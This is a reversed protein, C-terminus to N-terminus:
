SDSIVYFENGTKKLLLDTAGLLKLHETEKIIDSKSIGPQVVYINFDAQCYGSTLMNLVTLIDNDGGKEFRSNNGQIIRKEERRLMHKILEVTYHKWHFSRQAQGCVEYLDKLRGGSESKSSYKCHYLEFLVRRDPSDFTKITIIDSAENADDDDFIISYEADSKLRQLMNYQISDARKEKKQSEKRIDVGQWSLPIIKNVDFITINGKFPFYINNHMKSNDHFWIVPPFELFLDLLDEDNKARQVKLPYGSILDYKFGRSNEDDLLTLKYTTEIGEVNVSFTITDQTKNVYNIPFDVLPFNRYEFRSPYRYFEEDWKISIPQKDDYLTKRREPKQIFKFIDETNISEDLLKEGMENCWDCFDPISKILKTWIRGKSSCGITVKEGNEYGVGFLNSSTKNNDLEDLGSVIGNGAYMTFSIPGNLVPKLGLNFLELQFIGDLCRYINAECFLEHNTGCVADALKNHTSGNNSSNIFLLKTAPNLYVIYLDYDCNVLDEIKGWDVPKTKKAIIVLLNHEEHEITATEYINEPFYKSHNEPNWKIESDYLRFVVTSMAPTINRFPIKNPIQVDSFNKFFNEEDIIGQIVDENSHRIISDWDSDKQYLKRLTGKLKTDTINAVIKANGLKLNSERTFRGFFQFSTTINKHLDHMACIKLQPLDFGEGLMDVCIIIKHIGNKIRELIAKKESNSKIGSHIFVPNLDEYKSYIDNFIREAEEQKDVRAMLLHDYGNERDKLLLEVAKEAIKEDALQNNFELIPHFDIKKYYNDRQALSLPYNYIIDGLLRKKDNRFPTATFLLVKKDKIELQQKINKWTAAQSHHAEDIVLYNCWNLLAEKFEGESTLIGSILQPTSVIVSSTFIEKADNIDKIGSYLTCVKPNLSEYAAIKFEPNKLIGLTVFKESIQNRLSDSPVIVLLGSCQEAITLCLMTETKGTGTPMVVMATKNSISWHAQISHLAGIQPPRLGYEIINGDNDKDEKRYQFAGYWSNAIERKDPVNIYLTKKPCHALTKISTDPIKNKDIYFAADYNLPYKKKLTSLFYTRGNNSKFTFGNYGSGSYREIVGSEIGIHYSIKNGKLNNTVTKDFSVIVNENPFLSQM